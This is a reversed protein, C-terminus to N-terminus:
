ISHKLGFRETSRMIAPHFWPDDPFAGWIEAFSALERQRRLIKEPDVDAGRTVSEPHTAVAQACYINYYGNARFRMCLDIDNLTVPFRQEDFGNISVFKSKEVCMLAATVASRLSNRMLRPEKAQDEASLGRWMHGCIQTMGLAVGGHQLSGDEYLLRAGVAGAEPLVALSIMAQLWQRNVVSVDNNMFVLCDGSAASAGFNCLRSFNFDGDDRLIRIDNAYEDFLQFTEEEVSGNDIIIIEYSNRDPTVDRLRELCVRLVSAADRTPIIISATINNLTLVGESLALPTAAQSISLPVPLLAHQKEADQWKLAPTLAGRILYPTPYGNAYLLPDFAARTTALGNEFRDCIIIQQDANVSLVEALLLLADPLLVELEDCVLVADHPKLPDTTWFTYDQATLGRNLEAGPDIVGNQTRVLFVPRYNLSALRAEIDDAQPLEPTYRAVNNAHQAVELQQQASRLGYTGKQNFAKLALKGITRLSVGHKLAARARGFLLGFRTKASLPSLAVSDTPHVGGRTGVRLELSYEGKSLFTYAPSNPKAMLEILEFKECQKLTLCVSYNGSTNLVYWGVPIHVLGGGSKLASSHITLNKGIKDGYYERLLAACSQDAGQAKM